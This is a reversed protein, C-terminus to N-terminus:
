KESRLRFPLQISVVDDSRHWSAIIWPSRERTELVFTPLLMSLCTWSFRAFDNRLPGALTVLRGLTRRWLIRLARFFAPVSRERERERGEHVWFLRSVSGHALVVVIEMKSIILPVLISTRPGFVVRLYSRSGLKFPAWQHTRKERRSDAVVPGPRFRSSGSPVRSLSPESFDLTREPVFERSLFPRFSDLGAARTQVDVKEEKEEEEEKEEKEALRGGDNNWRTSKEGVSTKKKKTGKAQSEEEQEPQACNNRPKPAGRRQGVPPGTAMELLHSRAISPCGTKKGRKGPYRLLRFDRDIEAITKTGPRHAKRHTSCISGAPCYRHFM